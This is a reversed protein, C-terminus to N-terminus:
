DTVPVLSNRESAPLKIRQYTTCVHIVLKNVSVCYPLCLSVLDNYSVGPMPKGKLKGNMQTVLLM